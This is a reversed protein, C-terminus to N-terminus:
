GTDTTGRGPPPPPAWTRADPLVTLGGAVLALAGFLVPV